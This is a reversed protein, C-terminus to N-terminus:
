AAVSPFRVTLITSDEEAEWCHEVGPLWMVYDGQQSLVISREPFEVRFRGDILISLTTVQTNTTWATRRDGRPHSAWKLEVADTSRPDDAPTIFHGMFWGRYHNGELSANGTIIELPM